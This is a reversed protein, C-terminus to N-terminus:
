AQEEASRRAAPLSETRVQRTDRVGSTSTTRLDTRSTTYIALDTDTVTTLIGDETGAATTRIIITAMGITGGGATTGHTTHEGIVETTGHTTGAESISRITGDTTAGLHILGHTGTGHIMIVAGTGHVESATHRTTSIWTTLCM